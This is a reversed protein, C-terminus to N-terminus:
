EWRGNKLKGTKWQSDNFQLSNWTTPITKFFSHKGNEFNGSITWMNENSCSSFLLTAVTIIYLIQKNMRKNKFRDIHLYHKILEKAVTNYAVIRAFKNVFFVAASLNDVIAYLERNQAEYQMQAKKLAKTMENFGLFSISKKANV